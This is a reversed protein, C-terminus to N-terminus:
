QTTTSCIPQSHMAVMRSLVEPVYGNEGTSNKPTTNNWDTGEHEMQIEEHVL